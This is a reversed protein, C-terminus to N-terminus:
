NTLTHSDAAGDAPAPRLAAKIKPQKHRINHLEYCVQLFKKLQLLSIDFYSIGNTAIQAAFLRAVPLLLLRLDVLTHSMKINHYQLIVGEVFQKIMKWTSLNMDDCRIRYKYAELLFSVVQNLNSIKVSVGVLQYAFCNLFVKDSNILIICDIHRLITNIENSVTMYNDCHQVLANYQQLEPWCIEVCDIKRSLYTFAAAKVNEIDAPTLKGSIIDGCKRFKWVSNRKDCKFNEIFEILSMMNRIWEGFDICHAGARFLYQMMYEFMCKNVNEQLFALVSSYLPSSKKSLEPLIKRYEDVFFRKNEEKQAVDAVYKKHRTDLIRLLDGRIEEITSGPLLMQQADELSLEPADDSISPVRFYLQEQLKLVDVTDVFKSLRVRLLDAM